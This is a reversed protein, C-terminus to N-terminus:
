GKKTAYHSLNEGLASSTSGSGEELADCYDEVVIKSNFVSRKLTESIRDGTRAAYEAANKQWQRLNLRPDSSAFSPELLQSLLNTANCITKAQVVSQWAALGNSKEQKESIHIRM